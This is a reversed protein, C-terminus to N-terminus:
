QLNNPHLNLNLGKTPGNSTTEFTKEGLQLMNVGMQTAQRSPFM